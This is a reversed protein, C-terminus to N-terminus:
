TLSPPLFTIFFTVMLTHKIVRGGRESRNNRTQRVEEMKKTDSSFFNQSALNPALLDLSLLAAEAM